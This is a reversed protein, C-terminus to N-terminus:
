ILQLRGYWNLKEFQFITGDIFTTFYTKVNTFVNLKQWLKRVHQKAALWVDEMPNQEPANPALRICHIRREEDPRAGNLKRLYAKVHHSRHYSAGDWIIVVQRGQFRRRLHKLFAVTQDGNGADAPFTLARGTLLDVAGYYTQRVRENTIPLEIREGVPGWVYGLADGWLVHCEDVFFILRKRTV